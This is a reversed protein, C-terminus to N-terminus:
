LSERYIQEESIGRKVHKTNMVDKKARNAKYKESVLRMANADRRAIADAFGDPASKGKRWNSITNVHVAFLISLNSDSLYDKEAPKRHIADAITKGSTGALVVPIPESEQVQKEPLPSKEARLGKFREIGNRTCFGNYLQECSDNDYGAAFLQPVYGDCGSERCVGSKYQPCICRVLSM